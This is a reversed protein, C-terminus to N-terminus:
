PASAPGTRPRVSVEGVSVPVEGNVTRLLLQGGQNIGSATGYHLTEGNDVINVEQGALADCAAYRQPFDDFGHATIHNLGDYWRRAVREVLDVASAAAAGEDAQCVQQWDAVQRDLSRSLARADNLNVGMGIVVIHHDPSLRSAGARSTEILIGALKAFDWQLDNPWKMALRQRHEPSLLERLAESALLGAMPSLTPLHRAPLFIDYACSFMLNAGRRNQWTRGSRGRGQLQLHAGRLWPRLVRGSPERARELLDANTSTTVEVWDIAPFQPLRAALASQLQDPEPLAFPASSNM